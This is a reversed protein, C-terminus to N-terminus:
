KMTKLFIAMCHGTNRLSTNRWAGGVKDNTYGARNPVNKLAIERQFQEAPAFAATAVFHRPNRRFGRKGGSHHTSVFLTEFSFHELNSVIAGSWLPLPKICWQM